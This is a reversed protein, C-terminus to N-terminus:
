RNVILKRTITGDKTKICVIYVGSNDLKLNTIKQTTQTKIIQKGQVDTVTIEADDTSLEVAFQGITPNPYISIANAEKVYDKVSIAGSTKGQLYLSIPINGQAGNFVATPVRFLFTHKGASVPGLNIRRTDIVDGPCWNSFSQWQEPTRVSASYIGNGQTNYKRFPECTLRGPKYTLKLDNDFYAYHDRRNYEEGGSNAGHNSTILFFAADTLNSPVDFKISKTTEGITDTAAAQYNNINKNFFLPILVNTNQAPAPTNTVFELKGMFVDNRNSCGAVEKNAAYPVGFVSLEIWVDFKSTLSTEKLLMAVNNVSFTYPVSKPSVNKNMFPTIFRGIEIRSVSDPSYTSLGTPVLALNVYGIRDYNDCLASITVNMQLTTGISQLEASTLKRSFLDNRHKIIGAPPPPNTVKGAYGDHFIVSDMITITTQSIAYNCWTLLAITTLLFTKKM